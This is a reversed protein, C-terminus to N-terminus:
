YGSPAPLVEASIPAPGELSAPSLGPTDILLLTNAPASDVAQGLAAMTEASQFPVGLIAAYIRLQESAAIRQADASILRVPRGKM